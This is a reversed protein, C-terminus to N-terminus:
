GICCSAVARRSRAPRFATSCSRSCWRARPSGARPRVTATAIPPTCPACELVAKRMTATLSVRDSFNAGPLDPATSGFPANGYVLMMSPPTAGAPLTWADTDNAASFDFREPLDFPLGNDDKSGEIIETRMNSTLELMPVKRLEAITLARSLTRTTQVANPRGDAFVYEMRWQGQEPLAAVQTDTLLPDAFHLGRERSGVPDSVSADQFAAALRLANVGPVGALVLFSLGSQPVYTYVTGEPLIGKPPTVLVKSFISRGDADLVDDIDVSYGVHYSSFRPSNLLERYEQYPRVRGRYSAQNGVLKLGDPTPRVVLSDYAQSGDADAFRYSVVVDQQTNGLAYAVTGADFRRGTARARFLSAFAGRNDADRGVRQGDDLYGAPDGDVFLMRCAPALVGAAAGTAVGSDNGGAVRESAKLGYCATLRQLLATVAMPTPMVPLSAPDFTRLPEIPASASETGTTYRISPPDTDLSRVSITVNANADAPRVSVVVSDLVRDLGTGDAAFPTRLPDSPAVGLAAYLPALAALLRRTQTDVAATDVVATGDRLAGALLAPNGTPSLQSVIVDSFPTINVTGSDRTSSVSHHTEDDRTATLVIPAVASAPLPCAFRGDDGTTGCDITAGLRDTATVRAGAFPAGTAAVGSLATPGPTVESGPTVAHGGDGGGGGCAGLLSAITVAALRRTVARAGATTDAGHIFSHM